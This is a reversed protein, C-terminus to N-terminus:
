PKYRCGPLNKGGYGRSESQSVIPRPGSASEYQNSYAVRREIGTVM